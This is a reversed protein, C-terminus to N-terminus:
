DPATGTVLLRRLLGEEIAAIMGRRDARREELEDGLVERLSAEHDNFERDWARAVDGFAHTVDVTEVERFRAAEMLEDLPRSVAAARPGLRVARRHEKKSLGPAPTITYFAMRGDPKLM